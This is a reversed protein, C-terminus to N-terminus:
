LWYNRTKKRDVQLERISGYIEAPEMMGPGQGAHRHHCYVKAQFSLSLKKFAWDVGINLRPVASQFEKCILNKDSKGEM